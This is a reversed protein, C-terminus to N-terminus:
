NVRMFSVDDILIQDYSINDIYLEKFRGVAGGPKFELEFRAWSHESSSFNSKTANCGEGTIEIKGGAGKHWFSLKFRQTGEFHFWLGQHFSDNNHDLGACCSGQHSTDCIIRLDGWWGTEGAEFGPNTIHNVNVQVSNATTIWVTGSKGENGADDWAKAYITHTQDYAFMTNWGYSDGDKVHTGNIYISIRSVGTNDSAEAKISVNGSLVDGDAPSTIDVVPPIKDAEGSPNGDPDDKGSVPNSDCGAIIVTLPIIIFLFAKLFGSHILM